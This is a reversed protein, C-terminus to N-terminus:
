TQHFNATGCTTSFSSSTSAERDIFIRGDEGLKIKHRGSFMAELMSGKVKCLTDRSTTFAHDGVQLKIKHAQTSALDEMRERERDLQARQEDIRAWDAELGAHSSQAAAVEGRVSEILAASGTKLESGLSQLMQRAEQTLTHCRAQIDGTVRDIKGSMDAALLDTSAEIVALRTAADDASM